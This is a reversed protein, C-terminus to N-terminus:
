FGLERIHPSFVSQFLQAAELLWEFYETWLESNGVDMPRAARIRSAKKGPLEMWELDYDLAAEIQEQRGSLEGFLEKCGPIYLECRIQENRTDMILSLHAKSSGFSVDHWHQPYAKRLRLDSEQTAVFAKFQTWFDLQMLKTDTLQSQGSSSKVAKAWDNPQSLLQFKPAYPSEGIQWLEMEIAFINIKDDTHENLWDVAQKHEDRVNKVIWVVIEADFGSAYTILKGLHDHNTAELQNEIVIKRGTTEEEALIDVYYRGASAETEVLSIDIGIEDSLLQLNEEEALWNTFDSAEHPWAERLQVKTLRSLEM